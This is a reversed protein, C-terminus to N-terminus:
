GRVPLAGTAWTVGSELTRWYGISDLFPNLWGITICYAGDHTGQHHIAHHKRPLILWNEQAWKIFAPPKLEHSWSHYQNTLAIHFSSVVYYLGLGSAFGGTAIGVALQLMGLACNLYNRRLMDNMCMARPFEHHARFQHILGGVFPTDIKGWSDLGWHVMGSYWDAHCCGVVYQAALAVFVGLAGWGEPRYVEYKWTVAAMVVTMLAWAGVVFSMMQYSVLPPPLKAREAERYAERDKETIPM